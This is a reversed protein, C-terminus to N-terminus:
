NYKVLYAYVLNEHESAINFCNFITSHLKTQNPKRQQTKHCILGQLNYLALDEKYLYSKYVCKKSLM